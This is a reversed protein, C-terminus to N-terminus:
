ILNANREVSANKVAASALFIRGTQLIQASSVLTPATM